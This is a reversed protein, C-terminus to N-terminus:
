FAPRRPAQPAPPPAVQDPPVWEPLGDGRAGRPERVVALELSGGRFIRKAAHLRQAEELTVAAFVEFEARTYVATAKSLCEAPFGVRGDRVVVVAERPGLAPCRVLAYGDTELAQNMALVFQTGLPDPDPAEFPDFLDGLHEHNM